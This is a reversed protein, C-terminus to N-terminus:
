ITTQLRLGHGCFIVPVCVHVVCSCASASVDCMRVYIHAACCDMVGVRVILIFKKKCHPHVEELL